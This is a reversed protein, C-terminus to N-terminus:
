TCVVCVCVCVCVCVHVVCMYWVSCMCVCVCVCTGCIHVVCVCVCRTHTQRWTEVNRIALGGELDGARGAEAAYQREVEHLENVAESLGVANIESQIWPDEAMTFESSSPGDHAAPLGESRRIEKVAKRRKAVVKKAGRVEAKCSAVEGEQLALARELRQMKPSSM